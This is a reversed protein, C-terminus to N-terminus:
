EERTPDSNSEADPAESFRAPVTWSTTRGIWEGDNDENRELIIGDDGGHDDIIRIEIKDLDTIRQGPPVRTALTVQPPEEDSPDVEPFADLDWAVQCLVRQVLEPDRQHLDGMVHLVAETVADVAAEFEDRDARLQPADYEDPPLSASM